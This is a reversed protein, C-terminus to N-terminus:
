LQNNKTGLNKLFFNGSIGSIDLQSFSWCVCVFLLYANWYSAYRGSTSRIEYYGFLTDAWSPTDAQPHVGAHLPTSVGRGIFLIVSPHLVMVKGWVENAPPLYLPTPLCPFFISLLTALVNQFSISLSTLCFLKSFNFNLVRFNIKSSKLQIQPNSYTVGLM